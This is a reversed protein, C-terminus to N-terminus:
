KFIHSYENPNRDYAEENILYITVSRGSHHWIKDSVVYSQGKPGYIVCEGINPLPDGKPTLDNPFIFEGAVCWIVKFERTTMHKALMEGVIKM